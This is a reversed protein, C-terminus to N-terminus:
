LDQAGEEIWTRILAFEQTTMEVGYEEMAGGPLLSTYLSSSEPHCPSVVGRSDMTDDYSSLNVGGSANSDCHCWYICSHDELLTVIDLRYSVM